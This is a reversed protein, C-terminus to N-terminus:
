KVIMLRNNSSVLSEFDINFLSILTIMYFISTKFHAHKMNEEASVSRTSLCCSLKYM